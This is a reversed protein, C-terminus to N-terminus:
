LQYFNIIKIKIVLEKPLKQTVVKYIPPFNQFDLTNDTWTSVVNLILINKMYFDLTEQSVKGQIILTVDKM